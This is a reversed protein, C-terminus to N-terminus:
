KPREMVVLKPYTTPPTDERLKEEEALPNRGMREWLLHAVAKWEIIRRKMSVDVSILYRKATVKANDRLRAMLDAEMIECNSKLSKQLQTVRDLEATLATYAELEADTINKM